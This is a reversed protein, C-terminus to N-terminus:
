RHAAQRRYRCARARPRTSANGGRGACGTGVIAPLAPLGPGAFLHQTEGCTLEILRSTGSAPRARQGRGVVLFAYALM